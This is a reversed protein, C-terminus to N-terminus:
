KLTYQQLETFDKIEENKWSFIQLLIPCYLLESSKANSSHAQHCLMSSTAQKPSQHKASLQYQMGCVNM